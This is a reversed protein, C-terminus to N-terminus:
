TEQVTTTQRSHIRPVLHLDEALDVYAGLWQDTEEAGNILSKHAFNLM